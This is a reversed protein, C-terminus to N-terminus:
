LTAIQWSYLKDFGFTQKLGAIYLFSLNSMGVDHHIINM